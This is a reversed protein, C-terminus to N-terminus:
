GRRRPRRLQSVRPPRYPYEPDNAQLLRKVTSESISWQEGIRWKPTGGHYADIMLRLDADSLQDTM